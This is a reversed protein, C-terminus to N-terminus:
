ANDIDSVAKKVHSVKNPPRQSQIAGEFGAVLCSNLISTHYSM